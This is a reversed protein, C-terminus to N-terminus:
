FEIYDNPNLSNGSGSAKRVEFHLHHGTSTGHNPDTSAGGELGIVQGQTVEQGVQVDIRSLHAYFTYVEVGNVTHKIEICNGYGSQVGAYTIQGDAVALIETHHDGVIDIGSHFKTLGTIPHVRYGYESTIVYSCSMPLIFDEKPTQLIEADPDVWKEVQALRGYNKKLIDRDLKDVKGDENLDYISKEERNEETIVVGFNDNLDVIDDIEIEGSSAVDGALLTVDRVKVVKGQKPSINTVKYELYGEKQIVIDYEEVTPVSISYTGDENTLSQAIVERPNLEDNELRTDKTKYATVKAIHKGEWNQTIVKGTITSEVRTLIINYTEITTGDAATILVPITIEEQELNLDVWVEKSDGMKAEHDGVKITAYPYNTTVQIKAKEASKDVNKHYKQDEALQLLVDNVKLTKLSTDTSKQALIIKYTTTLDTEGTVYLTLEKVEEEMTVLSTVNGIGVSEALELTVYNNDSAVYVEHEPIAGDVLAIYTKTEADYNTVEEDDVVITEINGLVFTVKIDLYEVNSEGSQSRITIPITTTRTEALKIPKETVKAQEEFTGIRVYAYENNTQVKVVPNGLTNEVYATYRGNEGKTIEMENVYLKGITNDTSERMIYLVYDKTEGIESTASFNVVASGNEDLAQTFTLTNLTEELHTITAYEDQASLEVTVNDKINSDVFIQYTSDDLKEALIDNVKATININNSTNQVINLTVNRSIGDQATITLLVEKTGKGELPVDFTIKGKDEYITGDITAKVKALSDELTIEVKANTETKDQPSRYLAENVKTPTKSNVLISAINTNSDLKILEIIYEKTEGNQSTVKATIQKTQGNQLEYVETYAHTYVNESISITAYSNTTNIRLSNKVAKTEVTYKGTEEDKQIEVGNVYIKATTDKSKKSITLPYESVYSEYGTPGQVKIKYNKTDSLITDNYNITGIGSALVNEEEDLLSILAEINDSTLSVEHNNENANVWATYTNLKEDKVVNEDDVTVKSLSTDFTRVINITYQKTTENDEALVDVKFSEKGNIDVIVGNLTSVYNTDEALKITANKHTPIATFVISTKRSDVSISYTLESDKNSTGDQVEVKQLSADKSEKEIVLTTLKETGDEATIKLPINVLESDQPLDVTVTIEKANENGNVNAIANSDKATLTVIVSTQNRKVKKYYTEDEQVILEEALEGEALALKVSQIEADNNKRYIELIKEETEGNESTIIISIKKTQAAEIELEKSQTQMAETNGDISVKAFKSQTDAKITHTSQTVQAKYLGTEEDLVLTEGDLTISANVNTSKERVNLAYEKTYISYKDPGQIKITYQALEEQPIVQSTTLTGVGAEIEVGDKILYIEADPEEATIVIQADQELVEIVNETDEGINATKENITVESINTNFSRIIQLTYSNTTIGDEALVDIVIEEKGTISITEDILEKVYQEEQSLKLTANEHTPIASLVIEELKSDVIVQYNKDDTKTINLDKATLTKLSADKSEKEVILKTECKTGDEATIIIPVELKESSLTLNTTVTKLNELGLINVKSTAQKLNVNLSALDIRPVKIYYTGDENVTPNVNVMGEKSEYSLTISEIDTNGDLRIINITYVQSQTIGDEATIVVDYSEEDTELVKTNKWVGTQIQSDLNITANPEEAGVEILVSQVTSVVEVNYSGDEAPAVAKGNVKVYGLNNNNSKEYIVLKSAKTTIGNPATVVIGVVTKETQNVIDKTVSALNATGDVNITSNDDKTTATVEYSLLDRDVKIEYQKTISNWIAEKGDVSISLISTDDSITYITLYYKKVTGAESVVEIEIETQSSTLDIQLTATKTYQEQGNISIQAYNSLAEANIQVKSTANELYVEYRNQEDNNETELTANLPNEGLLEDVTISAINTIDEQRIIRLVYEESTAEDETKILIPILTEKSSLDINEIALKPTLETNNNISIKSTKNVTQVTIDANTYKDLIKAEYVTKGDIQENLKVAEVVYEEKGVTIKKIATNTEGRIVTITYAKEENTQEDLVNFEFITEKDQIQKTVKLNGTNVNGGLTIQYNADKTTIEIDVNQTSSLVYATYNNNEEELIEGNVSVTQVMSLFKNKYVNLIYQKSITQEKGDILLTAEVDINVTTKDQTTIVTKTTTKVDKISENIGVLINDYYCEVAISSRNVDDAVIAKYSSDEQLTAMTNNVMVSKLKLMEDPTYIKLISNQIKGSESTVKIPLEVYGKTLSTQYTQTNLNAVEGKISVMSNQHESTVIVENLGKDTVIIEYTNEETLSKQANYGNVTISQINNNNSLRKVTLEYKFQTGNETQIIVPIIVDEDKITITQSLTGGEIFTVGDDISIKDTTDKTSIILTGSQMEDDLPVEVNYGSVYIDPNSSENAEAEYGNVTISQIRNQNLPVVKRTLAVEKQTVKDTVLIKASGEAIAKIEGTLENQEDSLVEVVSENNSVMTYESIDKENEYRFVNYTKSTITIPEVDNVEMIASIPTIEFNRDGVLTHTLSQKYTDSTKDEKTGNGLQGYSNDGASYILGTTQTIYTNKKGAAISFVNKSNNIPIVPSTVEKSTGNIGIQGYDNAGWIYASEDKSQYMNVNEKVSIDIANQINEVKTLSNNEYKFVEGNTNLILLYGNGVQVKVANELHAIKGNLINGFGQVEGTDLVMIIQNTDGATLYTVNRINTDLMQPTHTYGEGWVYVLGYKDIAVAFHNGAAIKEINTLNPIQVLKDRAKIDGLGLQGKENYGTAWVTGDNRLALIFDKGAKIDVYTAVVNIQYPVSSNVMQSDEYGWININGDEKLSVAFNEGTDLKPATYVTYGEINDIVRIIAVNVKGTQKDTVKVWTTGERIGLVDGDQNVTAINTNLSEYNFDSTTNEDEYILNFKFESNALISIIESKKVVLELEELSSTDSGILVPIKSNTSSKLNKNGHNYDGWAWLTGDELVVATYTNGSAIRLVNEIKTNKTFTYNSNLTSDGLQGYNNTGALYINGNYDRLVSHLKGVNAEVINNVNELKIPTTVNIKDNTGLNGYINQGWIYIQGDLTVAMSSTWSASITGIKLPMDVKEFTSVRSREKLDIGLQSYLNSGVSYVDGNTKLLLYHNKGGEIDLVDHVGEVVTPLTKNSYTGNALEGYANQGWAYLKNDETVVMVSNNGASIKTVKPLGTIKIPNPSYSVNDVGLQYYNNRGWTWVNGNEDLAVSHNEGVAIEVIKTNEEFTVERPSDQTDLTGIGLQGYTNQGYTWVTGNTKLTVIHSGKTKVMPSITTKQVPLIETQVIGITNTKSEKAVINTTGTKAGKVKAAYYGKQIEENTLGAQENTLNTITAVSNDKSEFTIPIIENTLINFYNVYAKLIFEDNVGEVIHNKNSRIIYDGVMVPLISNKTQRNGLEGSIGSGWAYASGDKKAVVIHSNGASILMVDSLKLNEKPLSIDSLESSAVGQEGNENIGVTYVKSDKTLIVSYKNGAEISVINEFINQENIRIAVVEDQSSVNNGNGLQGYTNSGIGYARGETTLFVTHDTGEDMLRVQGVIALKELTSMKYVTGDAKVFYSTSVDIVNNLDTLEIAKTGYDKGWAFVKGDENIAFSNDGHAEVRIIKSLENGYINIVSAQEVQNAITGNGVQGKDNLGWAYITGSEGLALVHSNGVSIEVITEEIKEIQMPEDYNLKNGLGLQGLNGQGWTEINGDAKLAVTFNSGSKIAPVTIAGEPVIRVEVNTAFQKEEGNINGIITANLFTRGINKGTVTHTGDKNKEINAIQSDVITINTTSDKTLDKKLNLTIGLGIDVIESQGIQKIIKEVNSEIAVNLVMKLNPITDINGHGLQGKDNLGVTYINGEFDALATHGGESAAIIETNTTTIKTPTSVATSNGNALQYTENKGFTYVNKDKDLIMAYGNGCSVEVANKINYTTITESNDISIIEGSGLIALIMDDNASIKDVNRVNHIISGDLKQIKRDNTIVVNESIDVINELGEIKEPTNSYGEGWVYVNGDKDLALTMYKYADVKVINELGEVKVPEKTNTTNGIGLQGQANLGWTYVEKNKTLAVAHYYGAGINEINSLTQVQKPKDIYDQNSNIGLEGYTNSGWTWVTGDARLAVSFKSGLELKTNDNVVKVTIYTVYGNTTDTVKVKSYGEQMGTILGDSSIQINTEEAEIEYKLEGVSSPIFDISTNFENEIKFDNKNIQYTRNKNVTIAEKTYSLYPVEMKTYYLSNTTTGNGFQGYTNNGVSYAYGDKAIYTLTQIYTGYSNATKGIMKADDIYTGDPKKARVFSTSTTAVAGNSIQGNKNGGASWISGDMLQIVTNAGSAKVYKIKNASTVSSPLTLKTFSTSTATGGNALQGDANLGAGYLEGNTNKIIKFGQGGSIDIINSTNTNQPISYYSTTTDGVGLRGSSNLGWTEVSGNQTLISNMEGQCSIMIAKSSTISVKPSTADVISSIGLQGYNNLGWSYTTGDKGIASSYYRSASIDVINNLYDNENLGNVKLAYNSSVNNNIGLEGNNNSGWAYIYGEKTLALTHYYGVAIKVVNTLYTKNDIKVQVLEKSSINTGDGLQGYTNDGSCWVTGDEKLIATFSTDNAYQGTGSQAYTVANAKAVNIIAMAKLGYKSETAYVTTYGEGVATVKGTTDIKAISEDYSTWTIDGIEVTKPIRSTDVELNITEGVKMYTQNINLGIEPAQWRLIPYGGNIGFIDDLWVNTRYWSVMKADVPSVVNLKSATATAKPYNNKEVYSTQGGWDHGIIEPQGNVNGKNYSNYLYSIGGKCKVQGIIGGRRNNGGSITGTNYCNAVYGRGNNGFNGNCAVIGGTVWSAGSVNGRNICEIIYGIDNRCGNLAVIGGGSENGSYITAENICRYIVGGNDVTIGAAGSATSTATAYNICYEVRGLNRAVICGATTGRVSGRLVVERVKGSTALYGFLGQMDDTNYIYLNQIEHGNGEFTGAFALAASNGIPTFSKKLSASCVSSLDIDNMLYVTKGSYNDGANVADRFAVFDQVDYIYTINETNQLRNIKTASKTNNNQALNLMNIPMSIDTLKIIALTTTVLALSALTISLNKKIKRRLKRSLKMEVGEEFNKELKNEM